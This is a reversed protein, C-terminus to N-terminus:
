PRKSVTSQQRQLRIRRALREISAPTAECGWVVFVKWGMQRLDSQNRVDRKVNERFKARWFARNSKPTYAFRCGPHRHWFCGHVFVVARHRPLVIDPRGPLRRGHLAFRLGVRHLHSRVTREPTTNKGKIGSMM